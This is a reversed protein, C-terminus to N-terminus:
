LFKLAFKWPDCDADPGAMGFFHELHHESLLCFNTQGPRQLMRFHFGNRQPIIGQQESGVRFLKGRLRSPSAQALDCGPRQDEVLTSRTVPCEGSAQEPM